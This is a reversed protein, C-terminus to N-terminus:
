LTGNKGIKPVCISRYIFAYYTFNGSINATTNSVVTYLLDHHRWRSIDECCNVNIQKLEGGKRDIIVDDSLLRYYDHRNLFSFIETEDEEKCVKSFSTM